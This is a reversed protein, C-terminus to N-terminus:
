VRTSPMLSVAPAVPLVIMRWIQRCSFYDIADTGEDDRRPSVWNFVDRLALPKVRISNITTTAMM